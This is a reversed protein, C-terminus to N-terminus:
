SNTRSVEGNIAVLSLADHAARGEGAGGKQFSDTNFYYGHRKMAGSEAATGFVIRYVLGIPMQVNFSGNDALPFAAPSLQYGGRWIAKIGLTGWWQVMLAVDGLCAEDPTYTKPIGLRCRNHKM